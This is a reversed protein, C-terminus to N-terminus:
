PGRRWPSWSRCRPSPCCASAARSRPCGLDNQLYLTLYPLLAFMGAGIGFTAVSVGTFAPKRFLSLDFMPRQQRLEVIVFVVLLAASRRRPDVPDPPEVMRRRQGQHPRLDLLFLGGSFTVLGRWDLRKAGPDSVNVMRM